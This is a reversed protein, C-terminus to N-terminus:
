WNEGSPPIFYVKCKKKIQHGKFDTLVIEIENIGKRLDLKVDIPIDCNNTNTQPSKKFQDVFLDDNFFVQINKLNSKTSICSKLFYREDTSTSVSDQYFSISPLDTNKYKLLAFDWGRGQAYTTGAVALGNDRTEIIKNSYELSNRIFINEWRKNGDSDFKTNAFDASFVDGSRTQGSVVVGNDYTACVSGAQDWRGWSFVKQWILNGDQDLKLLVIDYDIVSITRTFGTVYIYGDLGEVVSTAEDWQNIRYINDWIDVGESNMKAVWFSNYGKGVDRSSTMGCVVIGKDSTEIVDNAYDSQKGGFTRDWLKRGTSDVKIIWADDGYLMSSSNIGAVVFGGDSTKALTRASEDGNEGFNREWVIEGDQNVKILWFDSNTAFPKVSYGAIVLMSDSTVVLDRGESSPTSKYTKGWLTNGKEDIRLLWLHKEQSKTYGCLFLDGNPAEVISLAEDWADGGYARAWDFAYQGFVPVPTVKFMLM